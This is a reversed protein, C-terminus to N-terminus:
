TSSLAFTLRAIARLPSCSEAVRSTATLHLRATAAALSPISHLVIEMMASLCNSRKLIAQGRPPMMLRGTTLRTLRFVPRGPLVARFRLKPKPIVGSKPLLLHLPVPLYPMQGFVTTAVNTRNGGEGCPCFSSSSGQSFTRFPSSGGM